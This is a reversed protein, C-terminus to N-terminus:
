GEPMGLIICPMTSTQRMALSKKTRLRTRIARRVSTQCAMSKMMIRCAPTAVPVTNNNAVIPSIKASREPTIFRPTSPMISIPAILANLTATLVPLGHSPTNTAM